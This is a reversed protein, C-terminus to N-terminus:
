ESPDSYLLKWQLPILPNQYYRAIIFPFAGFSYEEFFFKESNDPKCTAELHKRQEFYSLNLDYVISYGLKGTHANRNFLLLEEQPEIFWTQVTIKPFNKEIMQVLNKYSDEADLICCWEVLGGYLTSVNVPNSPLNFEIEVAEEFNDSMAPYKNIKAMHGAARILYNLLYKAEKKRNKALLSMLMNIERINTDYVPYAFAPNNNQLIIVKNLISEVGRYDKSIDLHIAYTCLLGLIEYIQLRHELINNYPLHVNESFLFEINKIFSDNMQNYLTILDIMTTSIDSKSVLQNKQIYEWFKIISYEVVKICYIYREYRKAWECILNITMLFTGVNKTHVAKGVKSSIVNEILSDILTEHYRNSTDNEDIFYLTKRLHSQLNEDFLNESFSYKYAMEVLHDIGWFMYELSVKGSSNNEKCYSSWNPLVAEDIYGNTLLIIQVPKTKYKESLINRIYVDKIENLSSRVSTPMNTSDWSSRTINKQKIVFLYAVGNKTALIDVGFQRTGTQAQNHTVFGDMLLLKPVLRDLEDKERLMSIYEKLLLKM